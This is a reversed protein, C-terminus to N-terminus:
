RILVENYGVEDHRHIAYPPIKEMFAVVCEGLPMTYDWVLNDKTTPVCQAPLAKTDVMVPAQFVIEEKLGDRAQCISVGNDHEIAGNCINIAPLTADPTEFDVIGWANQGKAKNYAGLKLLCSGHNEVPDPNYQYDYGGNAAFWGVSIAGQIAVDRNCTTITLMDVNVPSIIKVDYSSAFPVVGVGNFPAGNITGSIDYKYITDSTSGPSQSTATSSCRTLSLVLLAFFIVCPWKM